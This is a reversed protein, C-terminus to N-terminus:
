TLDAIAKNLAEEISWTPANRDRPGRLNDLTGIISALDAWPSCALGSREVWTTRVDDTM